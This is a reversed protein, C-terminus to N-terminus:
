AGKLQQLEGTPPEALEDAKAVRSLFGEMDEGDAAGTGSAM